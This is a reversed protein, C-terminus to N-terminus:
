SSRRSGPRQYWAVHSLGRVGLQVAVRPEREQVPGRMGVLEGLPRHLEAQVRQREGVVVVQAAREDEGVDRAADPQLGDGAALQRDLIAALPQVQRQQDLVARPVAVEALEQRGGVGARARGGAPREQGLRRHREVGHQFPRAAEDAEAAARRVAHQRRREHAAIAAEGLVARRAQALREPLPEPDLQRPGEQAAVPRPHPRQDLEGPPALQGEHGGVVDVDVRAPAPRQLVREDGDAGM